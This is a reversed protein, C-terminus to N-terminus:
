HRTELEEFLRIHQAFAWRAETAAEEVAAADFPLGALVGRLRTRLALVAEDDGFEYFRTGQALPLAYVRRVLRAIVQGGHLDGLYRVYAHAALAPPTARQLREVYDAMAPALPHDREWGAGHLIALDEALAAARHMSDVPLERAELAQYLGHLNRLLGVYRARPLRGHLLEAMVGSREARGHLDRTAARLVDPLSTMEAIIPM